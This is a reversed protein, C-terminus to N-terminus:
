EYFVKGAELWEGYLEQQEIPLRNQYKRLAQFHKDFRAIWGRGKRGELAFTVMDDASMVENGVPSGLDICKSLLSTPNKPRYTAARALHDFSLHKLYKKLEADTYPKIITMYDRLTAKAMRLYPAAETELQAISGGMKKVKAHQERYEILNMLIDMTADQSREAWTSKLARPLLSSM